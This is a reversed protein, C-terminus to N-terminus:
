EAGETDAPSQTAPEKQQWYCCGDDGDTFDACYPSAGCFCTATTGDGAEAALNYSIAHFRLLIDVNRVPPKLMGSIIRHWEEAKRPQGCLHAMMLKLCRKRTM